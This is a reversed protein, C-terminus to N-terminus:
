AAFENGMADMFLRVRAGADSILVDGPIVLSNLATIITDATLPTQSIQSQNLAALADAGAGVNVPAQTESSVPAQPATESEQQSESQSKPKCLHQGQTYTHHHGGIRSM